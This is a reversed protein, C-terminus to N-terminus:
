FDTDVISSRMSFSKVSKEFKFTQKRSKNEILFEKKILSYINGYCSSEWGACFSVEAEGADAGAMIQAYKEYNVQM